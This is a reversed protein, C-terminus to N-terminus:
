GAPAAFTFLRAPNAVVLADVEEQSFGEKRLRPLFRDFIYAIGIASGHVQWSSRRATDGGLVIQGGHGADILGRILGIVVSEPQYKIRGPTDYQLTVGTEAIAKHYALDPNRDLHGIAVHAPNVGYKILREAQELGMTGQETHSFIPAGTARHANAAAEILKESVPAIKQYDTAIKIAGAKADVRDPFPGNFGNEDMGEAIEEIMLRTIQDLSYRHIWHLDDYFSRQHFGTSAIIHVGTRRATEVLRKPSRGCGIPMADLLSKGGAQQFFGLEACAHEVSDLRFDPEKMVPLGGVM